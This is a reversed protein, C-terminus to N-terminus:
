GVHDGGRHRERPELHVRAEGEGSAHGDRSREELRGDVGLGAGLDLGPLLGVNGVTLLPGRTRTRTLPRPGRALPRPGHILPGRLTLLGLGLRGGLLGQLLRHLQLHLHHALLLLRGGLRDLLDPHALTRRVVRTQLLHTQLRWSPARRGRRCSGAELVVRENRCIGGDVNIM